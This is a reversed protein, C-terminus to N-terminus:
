TRLIKTLRAVLREFDTDFDRDRRMSLGNQYHLDQLSTPLENIRPMSADRVLIPIIPISRSLATEIEARVYDGGEKIRPTSSDQGRMLWDRGIVVLLVECNELVENLRKKFHVGLPIAETDKFVSCRGYQKKLRRCLDDTVYDSDNRRYSVFIRWPSPATDLEDALNKMIGHIQEVLIYEDFQGNASRVGLVNCRVSQGEEYLTITVTTAIGAQEGPLAMTPLNVLKLVNSTHWQGVVEWAKATVVRDFADQVADLEARFNFTYEKSVLAM